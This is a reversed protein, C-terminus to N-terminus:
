DRKWIDHENHVQGVHWHRSKKEWIVHQLPALNAFVEGGELIGASFQNTIGADSDARWGSNFRQRGGVQWRNLMGSAPDGRGAARCCRMQHFTTRVKSIVGHWNSGVVDVGQWM